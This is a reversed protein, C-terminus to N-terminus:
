ILGGLVAGIWRIVCGTQWVQTPRGWGSHCRIHAVRISGDLGINVVISNSIGGECKREPLGSSPALRGSALNLPVTRLVSVIVRQSEAGASPFKM